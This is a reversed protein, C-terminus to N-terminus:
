VILKYNGDEVFAGCVTWVGANEKSKCPAPRTEKLVELIDGDRLLRCKESATDYYGTETIQIKM